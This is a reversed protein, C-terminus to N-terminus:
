VCRSTYLLCINLLPPVTIIVTPDVFTDAREEMETYKELRGNDINDLTYTYAILDSASDLEIRDEWAFYQDATPLPDGNEDKKM